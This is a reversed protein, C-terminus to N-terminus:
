VKLTECVRGVKHFSQVTVAPILPAWILMMPVPKNFRLVAIHIGESNDQGVVWQHIFCQPIRWVHSLARAEGRGISMDFKLINQDQKIYLLHLASQPPM